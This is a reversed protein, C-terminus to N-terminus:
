VDVEREAAVLQAALDDLAVGDRWWKWRDAAAFPVVPDGDRLYPLPLGLEDVAGWPWSLRVPSGPVFSVERGDDLRVLFGAVELAERERDELGVVDVPATLVVPGRNRRVAVPELEDQVERLPEAPSPKTKAAAEQRQLRRLAQLANGM